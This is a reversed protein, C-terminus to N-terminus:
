SPPPEPWWLSGISLPEEFPPLVREGTEGELRHVTESTGDPRLRLVKLVRVEPELLWLWPVGGTAYLRVKETSDFLETSPSLVECVWDPAREVFRQVVWAPPRLQEGQPAEQPLRWGCVDPILVVDEHLRVNRQQEIWWLRRVARWGVRSQLEYLQERVAFQHAAGPAPMVRLRGPPVIEGRWGSPLRQLERVLAQLRARRSEGEHPEGSRAALAGTASGM